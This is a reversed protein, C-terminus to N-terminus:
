KRWGLIVDYMVWELTKDTLYLIVAMVLVFAFVAATTQITEKRSPWVVKRIEVVVDEGWALVKPNFQLVSFAVIGILVPFGHRVFDSDSLRAIVGFAGALSKMLFHFTIGLLAGAMAFSLTLVKSNTKDM